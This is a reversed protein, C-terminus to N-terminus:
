SSGQSLITELDPGTLWHLYVDRKEPSVPDFVNESWVITHETLYWKGTVSEEGSRSTTKLVYTKDTTLDYVALLNGGLGDWYLWRNGVIFPEDSFIPPTIEKREGTKLNLVITNGEADSADRMDLWAVWDGNIAPMRGYRDNTLLTRSGTDLDFLYIRRGAGTADPLRQDAVVYQKTMGIVGTVNWIYNDDICVHDLERSEISVINQVVLISDASCGTEQSEVLTTWVVWDGAAAYSPPLADNGQDAMLEVEVGSHLNHAHFIFLTYVLQYQTDMFLLWDDSIVLPMVSLTGPEYRSSAVTEIAGGALPYRYIDGGDVQSWYIYMDDTTVWSVYNNPGELKVQDATVPVTINQAPTVALPQPATPTMSPQVSSQTLDALPTKTPTPTPPSAPRCAALSLLFGLLLLRYFPNQMGLAKTLERYSSASVADFVAVAM